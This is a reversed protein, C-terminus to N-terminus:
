RQLGENFGKETVTESPEDQNDSKKNKGDKEDIPKQSKKKRKTFIGFNLAEPDWDDKSKKRKRKPKEPLSIEEEPEFEDDSEEEPLKEDTDFDPDEPEWDNGSKKRKRKRTDPLTIEEEESEEFEEDLLKKSEQGKVTQTIKRGSKRRFIPSTKQVTSKQPSKLKSEQVTSPTIVTKGLFLLPPPEEFDNTETPLNSYTIELPRSHNTKLTESQTIKLPKSQSIEALESQSIESLESQSIESPKSQSIEPFESQTIELPEPCSQPICILITAGSPGKSPTAKTQLIQHPGNKPKPAIKRYNERSDPM